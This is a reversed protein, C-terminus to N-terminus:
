VGDPSVSRRMSEAFLGISSGAPGRNGEDLKSILAPVLLDNPVLKSAAAKRVVSPQLRNFKIVSFLDFRQQDTLRGQHFAVYQHVLDFASEELAANTRNM